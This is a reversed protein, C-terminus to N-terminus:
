QAAVHPAHLLSPRGRRASELVELVRSTVETATAIQGVVGVQMDYVVLAMRNPDCADELTLPIDIGYAHEV